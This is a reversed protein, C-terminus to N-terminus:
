RRKLFIDLKLSIKVKNNTWSQKSLLLNYIFRIFLFREKWLTFKSHTIKISLACKVHKSYVTCLPMDYVHIHLRQNALIHSPLIVNYNMSFQFHWKAFMNSSFSKAYKKNLCKKEYQIIVANLILELNLLQTVCM